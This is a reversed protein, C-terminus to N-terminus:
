EHSQTGKKAGIDALPFLQFNLQIVKETPEDKAILELVQQQFETVQKKLLEYTAESVGLTLSSVERQSAKFRTISESALEIMKRHYNAVSLAAVVPGTSYTTASRKYGSDTKQVMGLQQLLDVSERIKSPAVKPTIMQSLAKFDGDFDTATILELVVPNYWHEYYTFHQRELKSAQNKPRFKMLEALYLNKQELAESQNFYVLLEFYKAERERLELAKCCRRIGNASLNRKAEIVMKFYNPSKFGAKQAFLRHSYFSFRRKKEDYFDSIYRRYNLYLFLSQM